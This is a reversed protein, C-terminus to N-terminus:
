PFCSAIDGIVGPISSDAGDINDNVRNIYVKGKKALVNMVPEFNKKFNDLYRGKTGDALDELEKGLYEKWNKNDDEKMKIYYSLREIAESVKM